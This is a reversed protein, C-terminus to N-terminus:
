RRGAGRAARRMGVEIGCNVICRRFRDGRGRALQGLGRIAQDLFRLASGSRDPTHIKQFAIGSAVGHEYLRGLTLRRWDVPHLCLSDGLYAGIAGARRARVFFETEEGRGNQRGRVGLDLRFGGILEVLKRRVAFSAGVPLLDESDLIRSEPGLDCQVLIGDFLARTEDRFWSPPTETMEAVIRGAFYEAEPYRELGCRYAKLWARDLTVDDDTFVVMEGRAEALARNRAASLGLVPESIRRLPLSSEFSQGVANTEDTCGNEVLLLEWGCGPPIQSCLTELMRALSAARDHTCVAVTIRPTSEGSM